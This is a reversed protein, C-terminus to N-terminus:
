FWDDIEDTAPATRHGRRLWLGMGAALLPALFAPEALTLTLWLCLAGFIFCVRSLKDSWVAHLGTRLRIRSGSRLWADLRESAAPRVVIDERHGVAEDPEAVAAAFTALAEAAPATRPESPVIGGSAGFDTRPTKWAVPDFGFLEVLPKADRAGKPGRETPYAWVQERVGGALAFIGLSAEATRAPDERELWEMACDVADFFDGLGDALPTEADGGSVIEVSFTRDGQTAAHSADNAM